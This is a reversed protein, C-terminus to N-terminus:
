EDKSEDKSIFPEDLNTIYSDTVFACDTRIKDAEMAQKIAEASSDDVSLKEDILAVFIEPKLKGTEREKKMRQVVVVM